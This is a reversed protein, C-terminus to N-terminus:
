WFWTSPIQEIKSQIQEIWNTLNVECKSFPTICNLVLSVLTLKGVQTYDCCFLTYKLKEFCGENVENGERKGRALIKSINKFSM